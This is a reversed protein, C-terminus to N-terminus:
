DLAAHWIKIGICDKVTALDKGGRSFAIPGTQGPLTAHCHGTSVDWVKVEGPLQNGSRSGGGTALTKGDATIAM